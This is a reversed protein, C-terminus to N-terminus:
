LTLKEKKYDDSIMVCIAMGMFLTWIRGAHSFFSSIVCTLFIGLLIKRELSGRPFKLSLDFISLIFLVYFFLGIIGYDCLIQIYANHPALYIGSREEVYRSGADPGGGLIKVSSPSEWFGDMSWKWLMARGSDLDGTENKYQQREIIGSFVVNIVVSSFTIM